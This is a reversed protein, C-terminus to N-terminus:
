LRVHLELDSLLAAQVPSVAELVSTVVIRKHCIWSRKKLEKTKSV